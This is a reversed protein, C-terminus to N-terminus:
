RTRLLNLRTPCLFSCLLKRGNAFSVKREKKELIEQYIKDLQIGYAETNFKKRVANQNKVMLDKKPVTLDIQNRIEVKEMPSIMIKELVERQIKENLRGFDVRKERVMSDFALQTSNQPPNEGYDSYFQLLSKNITSLLSSGSDILKLDVDIREYLHGLSIGLKAFDQTIEPLNRGCLGKGLIWPELFGLGFGEAVSTTIISEAHQVLQPFSSNVNEGLGYTVSLNLNQCFDKWNEFEPRFAPNTPGLSNAFHKDPHIMSLLALEGLNKRRVARVPYLYLNKPLPGTENSNKITPSETLVSNALLHVKSSGGQLLQDVFMYDRSNLVAYHIRESCPYARHYIKKLSLFNDPRGDEAFDHQHLLLYHGKEALLAVAATLSPNKGLSHNHIHWIDPSQGLSNSASKEMRGVLIQPDIAESSNSYDLGQIVETKQIRSGSYPRGSLVVSEIGSESFTSSDLTNEIVRTVGGPQLHYHVVAVKM